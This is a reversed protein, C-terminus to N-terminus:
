GPKGLKMGWHYPPLVVAEGVQELDLGSVAQLLSATDPRSAVEPGRPTKIDKRWHLIDLEGGPKLLRAAEQLLLHRESFHLINFMLVREVSDDALGTGEALVDRLILRMNDIGARDLNQRTMDLMSQEIDFAILQGGTQQQTTAVPLSFSGYGCGVEVVTEPETSLGIWELIAGYDFLSDWYAQEPMGSDHIKM